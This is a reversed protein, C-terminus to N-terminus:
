LKYGDSNQALWSIHENLCEKAIEYGINDKEEDSLAQWEKVTYDTEELHEAGVFGFSVAIVVNDSM